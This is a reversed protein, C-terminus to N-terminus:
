FARLSLSNSATGTRMLWKKGQYTGTKKQCSIEDTQFDFFDVRSHKSTKTQIIKKLGTKYIKRELDDYRQKYAQCKIPQTSKTWKEM